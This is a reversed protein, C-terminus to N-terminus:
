GLSIKVIQKVESISFYGLRAMKTFLCEIFSAFLNSFSYLSEFCVPLESENRKGKKNQEKRKENKKQKNIEKCLYCRQFPFYAIKCSCIHYFLAQEPEEESCHM